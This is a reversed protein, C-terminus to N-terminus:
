KCRSGEFQDQPFNLPDLKMLLNVPYSQCTNIITRHTFSECENARIIQRLEIGLDKTIDQNNFQAKVKNWSGTLRFNFQEDTDCMRYLVRVEINECKSVRLSNDFCDVVNQEQDANVFHTPSAKCM